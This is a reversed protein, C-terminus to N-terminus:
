RSRVFAVYAYAAVLALLMTVLPLRLLHLVRM